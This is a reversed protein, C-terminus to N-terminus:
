TLFVLVLLDVLYSLILHHCSFQAMSLFHSFLLSFALQMCVVFSYMFGHSSSRLYVLLHHALKHNLASQMKYFSNHQSQNHMIHRIKIFPVLIKSNAHHLWQKWVWNKHKLLFWWFIENKFLGKCTMTTDFDQMWSLARNKKKKNSSSLCGNLTQPHPFHKDDNEKKMRKDPMWLICLTHREHVSLLNCVMCASECKLNWHSQMFNHWLCLSWFTWWM